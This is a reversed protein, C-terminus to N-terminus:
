HINSDRFWSEVKGFRPIAEVLVQGSAQKIIKSFSRRMAMTEAVAM